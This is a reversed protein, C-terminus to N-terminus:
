FIHKCYIHQIILSILTILAQQKGKNSLNSRRFALAEFQTPLVNRIERDAGSSEM